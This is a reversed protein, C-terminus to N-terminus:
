RVRHLLDRALWELTAAARSAPLVRLAALAKRTDREIWKRAAEMVGLRSYVGTVNKVMQERTRASAPINHKFVDRLLTRDAGRARAAATLLLFTRKGEIIDGGIPKGLKRKDAAVDLLDDQLQFARGICAGYTRLARVHRINGGAIVAGIEAAVAFLRGTKKEIMSFYEAVNVDQRHEFEMDLAQGDCVVLLAETLLEAVRRFQDADLRSLNRYALGLLVDGSLLAIDANWRTHVTPQGRRTASNDMIDDHVLTFNHLTELAVGAELAKRATGGAAECALMTLVPRIRKGGASLVYRCADHLASPKRALDLSLARRDVQLRLADVHQRCQQETM